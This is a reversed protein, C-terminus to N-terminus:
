VTKKQQNLKLLSKKGIRIWQVLPINAPCGYVCSGCEMCSNIGLSEAEEIRGLQSLKALRTPLLNMPCVQICKGCRLCNTEQHSHIESETLVIIGSTAKMVPASLEYQGVGMMPGGAIIKVADQTLGGCFNIVQELPTGIKVKLNKPNKIGKGSVTLWTYLPPNGKVVAEYVEVATGVNQIVAGVEVPLKGPPVERGTVAKILMKEAGQPYKTKVSEVFIRNENEVLKSLINIADQKNEEIGIIGTEAGSAKMSIKLGAIIDAPRELMLRYDRTLYPECECGNIILYEIKKTAPPSLKVFTPFAAGGQGVIGAIKIRTRIEDLSAYEPNIPDYKRIEGNDSKSIFICEKQFGSVTSNMGIKEVKGCVSSLVPSSIYGDAEAIVEGAAVIKGKEAIIKAPRGIHQVTPLVIMEPDPMTELPLDKTIQKEEPPHIGGNFTRINKFFNMKFLIRSNNFSLVIKQFKIFDDSYEYL